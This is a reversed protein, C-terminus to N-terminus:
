VYQCSYITLHGLNDSFYGVRRYDFAYVINHYSSVTPMTHIITYDVIYVQRGEGGSTSARTDSKDSAVTTVRTDSKAVNLGIPM